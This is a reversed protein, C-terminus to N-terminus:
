MSIYLVAGDYYTGYRYLSCPTKSGELPAGDSEALFCSGCEPCQLVSGAYEPSVEVRGHDYPCTREFAVFDAIGTRVVVIGQHGGVLYECGGVTNLGPCLPSLPDIQCAADGFPVDCVADHKCGSLLAMCGLLLVLRKFAM